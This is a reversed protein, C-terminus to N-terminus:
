QPVTGDSEVFGSLACVYALPMPARSFAERDRGLDRKAALTPALERASDLVVSSFQIDDTTSLNALFYNLLQTVPTKRLLHYAEVVGPLLIFALSALPATSTRNEVIINLLRTAVPYLKEKWTRHVTFLGSGFLSLLADDDFPNPVTSPIRHDLQSSLSPIPPTAAPLALFIPNQVQHHRVGNHGACIHSCRTCRCLLDSLNPLQFPTLSEVDSHRAWLHAM